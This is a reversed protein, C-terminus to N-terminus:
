SRPEVAGVSSRRPVRGGIRCVVEYGITNSWEAWEEVTIAADGAAGILVVEDGVAVAADGVDVLMQDMTVRGVIPCRRGGILVEGGRAALDRPVGDAYGVPVTALTTAAECIHTWGYSVPTGAAVRKVFSVKSVWSLVPRLGSAAAPVAPSPSIGYLAIGVRVLDRRASPRTLGAASNAVHVAAHSWAGGRAQVDDVVDAFIELQQDTGPHDPEDAVALHSMVGAPELVDDADIADCLAAVDAPAVGVRGMGTDVKVHVSVAGVTGRRAAAALATVQEVTYVTADLRHQVLVDLEAEPQESLVLIPTSDPLAAQERLRVGEGVLAVCLGHAGAAVAARAVDGDGHGYGDAKVVAWVDAPAVLSRLVRVNHAIAETDVVVETSRGRVPYPM